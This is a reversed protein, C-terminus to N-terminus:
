PQIEWFAMRVTRRDKSASATTTPESGPEVGAPLPRSQFQSVRERPSSGARDVPERLATTLLATWVSTEYRSECLIRASTSACCWSTRATRLGTHPLKRPTRTPVWWCWLAISQSRCRMWFPALRKLQWSCSKRRPDHRRASRSRCFHGRGEYRAIHRGGSCQDEVRASGQKDHPPEHAQRLHEISQDIGGTPDSVISIQGPWGTSGITWAHGGPEHDSDLDFTEALASSKAIFSADRDSSADAHAPRPVPSRNLGGRPAPGVIAFVRDM